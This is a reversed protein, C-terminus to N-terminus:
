RMMQRRGPWGGKRIDFARVTGNNRQGFIVVADGEKIGEKFLPRTTSSVRIELRKNEQDTLTFGGESVDSVVGHYVHSPKPMGFGHYLGGMMPLNGQQTRLFINPHLDTRTVAFSGAVAFLLIGLISYVIPRRYTFSFRKLLLELALVLALVILILLWPLSLFFAGMARWGFQPLFWVGSMRLGFIIFSALFLVLFATLLALFVVGVTRSVFYTKPRMKVEGRQIKDLAKKSLRSNDTKNKM